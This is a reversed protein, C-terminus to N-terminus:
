IKPLLTEDPLKTLEYLTTWSPPLVHAHARNSLVPHRAVAMLKRAVSPDFPLKLRVMAEFQGHDLADKAEILLRGTEIFAEVGKRWAAAICSTWEKSLHQDDGDGIHPLPVIARPQHQDQALSAPHTPFNATSQQKHGVEGAGFGPAPKQKM